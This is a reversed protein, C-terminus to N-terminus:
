NSVNVDGLFIPGGFKCGGVIKESPTCLPNGVHWFPTIFHMVFEDSTNPQPVGPANDTAVAIFPHIIDEVIVGAVRTISRMRGDATITKQAGNIKYTQDKVSFMSMEFPGVAGQANVTGVQCTTGRPNITFSSVQFATTPGTHMGYGEGKNEDGTPTTFTQAQAQAVAGAIFTFTFLVAILTRKM